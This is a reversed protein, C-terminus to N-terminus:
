RVPFITLACGDPGYSGSHMLRWTLEGMPAKTLGKEFVEAEAQSTSCFELSYNGDGSDLVRFIYKEKTDPINDPNYIPGVLDSLNQSVEDSFRGKGAFLKRVGARPKGSEDWRGSSRTTLVQTGTRATDGEKGDTQEGAASSAESAEPLRQAELVPLRNFAIRWGDDFKTATASGKVIPLNTLCDPVANEGFVTKFDYRAEFEVLKVEGDQQTPAPGIGTVTVDAFGV